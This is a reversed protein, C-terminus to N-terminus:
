ETENTEFPVEKLEGDQKVLKQIKQEVDNLKKTCIGVLKSGEEFHSIMEELSLEGGEMEEVLAELRELSREFDASKKEAM